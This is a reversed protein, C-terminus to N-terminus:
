WFAQGTCDTFTIYGGKGADYGDEIHTPFGSGSNMEEFIEEFIKNLEDADQAAKYYNSNEAREGLETWKTANPYNSSVGHMYANFSSSTNDPNAQDFVGISYIKTLDDKLSKAAQITNNATDDDFGSRGPTGDTFFIVVKQAKERANKLSEKAKEM